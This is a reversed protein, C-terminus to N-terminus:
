AACPGTQCPFEGYVAPRIASASSISTRATRRACRTGRRATPSSRPPAAGGAAPMVWLHRTGSRFAYFVLESDDPSFSPSWDATPDSTVRQM